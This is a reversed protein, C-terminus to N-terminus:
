LSFGSTVRLTKNQPTPNNNFMPLYSSRITEIQRYPQSFAGLL